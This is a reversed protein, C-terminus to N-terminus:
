SDGALSSDYCVVDGNAFEEKFVASYRVNQWLRTVHEPVGYETMDQWESDEGTLPSLPKGLLLREVVPIMVSVAGGSDWTNFFTALITMMSDIEDQPFKGTMEANAKEILSM